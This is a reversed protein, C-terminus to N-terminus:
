LADLQQLLWAQDWLEWRDAIKSDVYRDMIMGEITVQKGTPGLPGLPGDHTGKATWRTAVRDGVTFQDDMTFHLDSFAALMGALMDKSEALTLDRKPGGNLHIHCDPHFADDAAAINRGNLADVIIQQTDTVALTM